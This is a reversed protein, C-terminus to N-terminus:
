FPHLLQFILHSLCPCVGGLRVFQQLLQKLPVAGGLWRRHSSEWNRKWRERKKNKNNSSSLSIELSPPPTSFSNCKMWTMAHKCQKSTKPICTYTWTPNQPFNTFKALYVFQPSKHLQKQSNPLIVWSNTIQFRSNHHIFCVQHTAKHKYRRM